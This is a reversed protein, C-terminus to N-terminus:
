HIDLGFFKKTGEGVVSTQATQQQKQSVLLKTHTLESMGNASGLRVHGAMERLQTFGPQHAVTPLTQPDM